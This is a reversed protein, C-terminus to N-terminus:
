APRARAAIAAWGGSWSGSLCLLAPQRAHLPRADGAILDLPSDEDPAELHAVPPMARQQAATLAVCLEALATAAGIYGTISKLATLPVRDFGLGALAATEQRDDEYTGIGRAVVADAAFGRGARDVADELRQSLEVAVIEGRIRAGRRRADAERELVVFAAGEGLVIGDRTRDFPRYARGAASPSLLGAREYALYTSVTLLSDCAGVLAMDCRHEALDFCASALAHASATDGQVFNGSPGRAGLEAALLGPLANPLTRLSWYPDVLRSARGGLNRYDGEATGTDAVEMAAFFESAELGTQGTATYIGFRSPDAPIEPAPGAMAELAAHIALSVSRSMFKENKPLRLRGRLEVAPAEAAARCPFVGPDFRTLACIGSEGRLARETVTRMDLGTALAVGAGTIAVPGCSENVPM